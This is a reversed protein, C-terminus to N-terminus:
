TFVYKSLMRENHFKHYQIPNKKCAHLLTSDTHPLAPIRWTIEHWTVHRIPVATQRDCLLWKVLSFSPCFYYRNLMYLADKVSLMTNDRTTWRARAHEEGNNWLRCSKRFPTNFVFHTYQNETCSKDSVNWVRLLVSRSTIFICLNGHLPDM